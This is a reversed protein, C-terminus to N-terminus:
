DRMAHCCVKQFAIELIREKEKTEFLIKEQAKWIDYDSVNKSRLNNILRVRRMELTHFEDYEEYFQRCVDSINSM